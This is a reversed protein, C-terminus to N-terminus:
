HDLSQRRGSTHGGRLEMSSTLPRNDSKGLIPCETEVNGEREVDPQPREHGRRRKETSTEPLPASARQGRAIKIAARKARYRADQAPHGGGCNPCKMETHPCVKGVKGCAAVECRHEETRHAGACITCTAAARLCRFESHGWQGCMGCLTDAKNPIYPLARFKNGAVWMEVSLKQATVKGPVKIIVSAANKPLRGAQYYRKITSM